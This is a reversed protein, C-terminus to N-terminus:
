HSYGTSLREATIFNYPQISTHCSRRVWIGFFAFNLIMVSFFALSLLCPNFCYVLVYCQVFVPAFIFTIQLVTNEAEKKKQTLIDLYQWGREEETQADIQAGPQADTTCTFYYRIFFRFYCRIYCRVTLRLATCSLTDTPSPSPSIYHFNNREGSGIDQYQFHVAKAPSRAPYTGQDVAQHHIKQKM